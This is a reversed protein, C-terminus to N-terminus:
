SFCVWSAEHFVSLSDVKTKEHKLVVGGDDKFKLSKPTADKDKPIYDVVHYKKALLDAPIVAAELYSPVLAGSPDFGAMAPISSTGTFATGQPATNPLMPPAQNASNLLSEVFRHSASQDFTVGAAKRMQNLTTANPPIPATPPPARTTGTGAAQAAEQAAFQNLIQNFEGMPDEPTNPVIIDPRPPLNTAPATNTQPIYPPPVSSSLKLPAAAPKPPPVQTPPPQHNAPVQQLRAEVSMQWLRGQEQNNLITQLLSMVVSPDMTQGNPIPPQQHLMQQQLQQQQQTVQDQQQQLHQTQLLLQQQQQAQLQPPLTTIDVQHQPVSNAPESVMLLAEYLTEVPTSIGGPATLAANSVSSATAVYARTPTRTLFYPGAGWLFPPLGVTRNGVLSTMTPVEIQYYESAAEDTTIVNRVRAIVIATCVTRRECVSSACTGIPRNCDVCVGETLRTM